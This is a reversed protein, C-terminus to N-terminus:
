LRHFSIRLAKAGSLGSHRGPTGGTFVVAFLVAVPLVLSITEPLFFLYSYAVRTKSIGRGLYTDLKDTLDIVMVLFPFGLAALLFVKTWERLLYRDLTSVPPGVGGGVVGAVLREM